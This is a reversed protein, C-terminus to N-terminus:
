VEVVHYRLSVRVSLWITVIFMDDVEQQFSVCQVVSPEAIVDEITPLNMHFITSVFVRVVDLEVKVIDVVLVIDM